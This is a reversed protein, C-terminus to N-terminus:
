ASAARTEAELIATRVLAAAAWAEEMASLATEFGQVASAEPRYVGRIAEWRSRLVEKRRYLEEFAQAHAAHLSDPGSGLRVRVAELEAEWAMLRGDVETRRGGEM